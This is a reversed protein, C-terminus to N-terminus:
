QKPVLVGPALDSVLHLQGDGNTLDLHLKGDAGSAGEGTWTEENQHAEIKTLKLMPSEGNFAFSFEGSIAKLADTGTLLVGDASFKGTAQLHQLTTPGTGSTDVNGEGAVIGGNWPYGTLKMAFHYRPLRAALTLNGSGQLKGAPLATRLNTFQVSTGQWIFRTSLDGLPTQGLTLHKISLEGELNRNALWAPLNRRTFPLRSLLSEDSLTPALLAELQGLDAQPFDLLLREPHKASVSYRYSGTFPMQGIDGSMRPLDFTGEDFTAKGQMQNVPM